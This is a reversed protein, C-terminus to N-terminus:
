FIGLQVTRTPNAFREAGMEILCALLDAPYNDVPRVGSARLVQPMLRATIRRNELAYSVGSPTRVNDELVRFVGDDGRV